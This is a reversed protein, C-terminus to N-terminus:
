VLRLDTGPYFAGARRLLVCVDSGQEREREKKGIKNGTETGTGDQRTGDRGTGNGNKNGNDRKGYWERYFFYFIIFSNKFCKLRPSGGCPGRSHVGLVKSSMGVVNLYTRHHVYV